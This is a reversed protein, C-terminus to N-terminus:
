PKKSPSTPTEKKVNSKANQHSKSPSAVNTTLLALPPHPQPADTATTIAVSHPNDLMTNTHKNRSKNKKHLYFTSATPLLSPQKKSTKLTTKSNHPNQM